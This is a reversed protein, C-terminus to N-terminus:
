NKQNIKQNIKQELAKEVYQTITLGDKKALKKLQEKKSPEIRIFLRDVKM